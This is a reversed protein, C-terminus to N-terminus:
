VISSDKKNSDYAALKYTINWGGQQHCFEGFVPLSEQPTCTDTSESVKCARKCVDYSESKVGASRFLPVLSGEKLPHCNGSMDQKKGTDGNEEEFLSQLKGTMDILECFLLLWLSCGFNGNGALVM